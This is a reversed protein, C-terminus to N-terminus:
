SFFLDVNTVQNKKSIKINNPHMWVFIQMNSYIRDLLGNNAKQSIKNNIKQIIKWILFPIFDQTSSYWMGVFGSTPM